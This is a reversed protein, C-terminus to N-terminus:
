GPLYPIQRHRLRFEATGRGAAEFSAPMRHSGRAYLLDAVDGFLQFCGFLAVTGSMVEAASAGGAADVDEFLRDSFKEM